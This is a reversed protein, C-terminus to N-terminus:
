NSHTTAILRFLQDRNAPARLAGCDNALYKLTRVPALAEVPNCSLM